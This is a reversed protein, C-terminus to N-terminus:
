QFTMTFCPTTGSITQISVRPLASLSHRLHVLHHRDWPVFAEAEPRAVFVQGVQTTRGLNKVADYRAFFFQHGLGNNGAQEIPFGRKRHPTFIALKRSGLQCPTRIDVANLDDVDLRPSISAGNGRQPFKRHRKLNIEVIQHCKRLASGRGRPRRFLCSSQRLSNPSTRYPMQTRQPASWVLASTEQVVGSM